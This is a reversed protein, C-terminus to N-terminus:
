VIMSDSDGATNDLAGEGPSVSLTAQPMATSESQSAALSCTGRMTVILSHFLNPIPRFPFPDPISWKMRSPAPSICYIVLQLTLPLIQQETWQLQFLQLSYCIFLRKETKGVAVLRGGLM